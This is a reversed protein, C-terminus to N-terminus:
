GNSSRCMRGPRVQLLHQHDVPVPVASGHQERMSRMLLAFAADPRAADAMVAVQAQVFGRGARGAVGVHVADGVGEIVRRMHGLEAAISRTYAAVHRPLGLLRAVAAEQSLAPQWAVPVLVLADVWFLWPETGPM